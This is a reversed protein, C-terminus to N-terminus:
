PAAELSAMTKKLEADNVEEPDDFASKEDVIMGSSTEDQKHEEKQDTKMLKIDQFSCCFSPIDEIM